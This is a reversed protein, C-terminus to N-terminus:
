KLNLKTGLKSFIDMMKQSTEVFFECIKLNDEKTLYSLSPKDLRVRCTVKDDMRQWEVGNLQNDVDERHTILTDFIEKNKNKEGTNIYLEVRCNDKNIIVNINGGKITPVSKGLWNDTVATSANFMGNHKKNYEIFEGWFKKRNNYRIVTSESDVSEEQEKNAIKIQLEETDEIPIIQDFEMMVQDGYKYPTVKVCKILLKFNQLWLVSSTVEKHFNAAVLIIRQSNGKNIEIDDIEKGDFFDSIVETAQAQNGLYKQFIEIVQQKSLTSCYSAYKIAQWTVDKGSDDLKNEIIVLNGKKDLALLDLRERTDAFGDFEKQIILLDEGLSSPEKAIWEQLDQREKLNLSKFTCKEAKILCKSKSDLIYM